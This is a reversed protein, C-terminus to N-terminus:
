TEGERKWPVMEGYVYLVPVIVKVICACHGCESMTTRTVLRIGEGFDEVETHYSVLMPTNADAVLRCSKRRHKHPQRCNHSRPYPYM